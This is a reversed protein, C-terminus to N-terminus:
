SSQSDVDCFGMRLWESYGGENSSSSSNGGLTVMFDRKVIHTKGLM